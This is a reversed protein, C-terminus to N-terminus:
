FVKLESLPLIRLFAKGVINRKRVLGIEDNRSDVSNARNDGLVFYEDELLYICKGAMGPDVNAGDYYKDALEEGNIFVKGEANMQVTEGPMGIIRKVVYQNRDYQYPFIIMDYRQPENKNYIFKNILVADGNKLTPAMSNGDVVIKEAFFTVVILVLVLIMLLYLSASMIRKLRKINGKSVKKSM